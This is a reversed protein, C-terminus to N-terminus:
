QQRFEGEAISIILRISEQIVNFAGMPNKAARKKEKRWSFCNENETLFTDMEEEANEM